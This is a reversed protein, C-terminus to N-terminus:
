YGYDLNIINYKDTEDLKFGVSGCVLKYSPNNFLVAVSNQFCQLIEPNNYIDPQYINLQYMFEKLTFQDRGIGEIDKLSFDICRQIRLDTATKSWPIYLKEGLDPACLPTVDIINNNEDLCWFHYNGDRGPLTNINKQLGKTYRSVYRNEKIIKFPVGAFCM